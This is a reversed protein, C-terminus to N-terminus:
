GWPGWLFDWMKLKKPEVLIIKKLKKKFNIVTVNGKLYQCLFIESSLSM